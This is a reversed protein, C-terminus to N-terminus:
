EDAHSGDYNEGARVFVDNELTFIKRIQLKRLTRVFMHSDRYTCRERLMSLLIYDERPQKNQARNINAELLCESFVGIMKLMNRGLKATPDTISVGSVNDNVELVLSSQPIGDEDTVDLDVKVGDFGIPNAEEADKMKTCTLVVTKEVRDARYEFDLAGKLASSGRAREKSQHGTHHNVLVTADYTNVLSSSNTIFQGMDKVTNEDGIGFNAALTDIGIFVPQRGQLVRDISHKLFVVSELDLFDVKNTTFHLDLFDDKPIGHYDVWARARKKMGASGEGLVIVVPGKHVSNGHWERGTAISLAIDILAFSKYSGPDGFLVGFTGREIYRKVLWRVNTMSNIFSRCDVLEVRLDSTAPDEYPDYTYRDPQDQDPELGAYPPDPPDPTGPPQPEQGNPSHKSQHPEHRGDNAM